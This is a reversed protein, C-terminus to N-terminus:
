RYRDGINLLPPVLGWEGYMYLLLRGKKKKVKKVFCVTIKSTVSKSKLAQRRKRRGWFETHWINKLKYPLLVEM